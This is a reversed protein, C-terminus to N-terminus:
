EDRSEVRSVAEEVELVAGDDLGEGPVLIGVIPTLATEARSFLSDNTAVLVAFHKAPVHLRHTKRRGTLPHLAATASTTAASFYLM